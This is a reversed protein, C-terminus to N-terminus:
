LRVRPPAPLLSPVRRGESVGPTPSGRQHERYNLEALHLRLLGGRGAWGSHTRTRAPRSAWRLCTHAWRPRSSPPPAEGAHVPCARAHHCTPRPAQHRVRSGGASVHRTRPAWPGSCLSTPLPEATGQSDRHQEDATGRLNQPPFSGRRSVQMPGGVHPGVDQTSRPGLTGGGSVLVTPCLPLPDAPLFWADVWLASPSPSHPLRPWLASQCPLGRRGM